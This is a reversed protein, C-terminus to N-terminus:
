SPIKPMVGHRVARNFAAMISPANAMLVRHVSAGDLAHVTINLPPGGGAGGAAANQVWESIHAPLVMENRHLMSLISGCQFSPVVWGREAFAIAAAPGASSFLSGLWGLLGSGASGAFDAGEARITATEGGFSGLLSGFLGGGAAGGANMELAGLLGQGFLATGLSGFM